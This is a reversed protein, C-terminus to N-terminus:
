APDIAEFRAEPATMRPKRAPDLPHALRLCAAPPQPEWPMRRAEGGKRWRSADHGLGGLYQAVLSADRQDLLVGLLAGRQALLELVLIRRDLVLELRLLLERLQRAVGARRAQLAAALHRAARAGVVALEADRADCQAVQRQLALQ